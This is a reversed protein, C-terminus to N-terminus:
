TIDIIIVRKEKDEKDEKNEKNKKYLFEEDLEIQLQEQYVEEKKPIKHILPDFKTPKSVIKNKFKCNVM